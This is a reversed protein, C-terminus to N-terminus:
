GCEVCPDCLGLSERKGVGESRCVEGVEVDGERCTVSGASTWVLGGCDVCGEPVAVVEGEEVRTMGLACETGITGVSIETRRLWKRPAHPRRAGHSPVRLRATRQLDTVVGVGHRRYGADLLLPEVGCVRMRHQKHRLPDVDRCLSTLFRGDDLLSRM